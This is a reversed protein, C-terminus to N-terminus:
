FAPPTIAAVYRLTETNSPNTIRHPVGADIYISDETELLYQSGGVELSAQGQLVLLCEDGAHPMPIDATSAGPGLTATMVELKRQLDPTLLENVVNCDAFTFHARQNKRVVISPSPEELFFYFVPVRLTDAIARLTRIAPDVRGREIQSLASPTLGTAHGLDGMTMNRQRRLDRVKSGIM